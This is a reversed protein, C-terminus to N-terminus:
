VDSWPPEKSRYPVPLSGKPYTNHSFEVASGCFAKEYACSPDHSISRLKTCIQCALSISAWFCSYSVWLVFACNSHTYTSISASAESFKPPFLSVNARGEASWPFGCSVCLFVRHILFWGCSLPQIGDCRFIEWGNCDLFPSIPKPSYSRILSEIRYPIKRSKRYRRSRIKPVISEADQPQKKYRWQKRIDGRRVRVKTPISSLKGM